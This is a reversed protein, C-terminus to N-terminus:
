GVGVCVGDGFRGVSAHWSFYLSLSFRVRIRAIHHSTVGTQILLSPCVFPFSRTTEPRSLQGGAVVVLVGGGVKEGKGEGVWRRKGVGAALDWGHGASRM